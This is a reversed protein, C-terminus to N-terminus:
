RNPVGCLVLCSASQRHDSRETNHYDRRHGSRWSHTYQRTINWDSILHINSSHAEGARLYSRLVKDTRKFVKQLVATQLGNAPGETESLQVYVPSSYHLCLGAGVGYSKCKRDASCRTGCAAATNLAKTRSTFYPIKLAIGPTGCVDDAISPSALACALLLAQYLQM